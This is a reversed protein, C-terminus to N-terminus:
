CNKRVLKDSLSLAYVTIYQTKLLLMYLGYDSRVTSLICVWATTHKAVTAQM